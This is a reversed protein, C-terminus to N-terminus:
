DVLSLFITGIIDERVTIYGNLPERVVKKAKSSCHYLEKEGAEIFVLGVHKVILWNSDAVFLAVSSSVSENEMSLVAKKSAFPMTVKEPQALPHDDPLSFGKEAFFKGRDIVRTVTEDAIEDRRKLLSKNNPLWNASVFHCRTHFGIEGNIYRIRDLNGIVEEPLESIALALCTEVYTMCDFGDARFRPANVGEGLPAEIYMKSIFRKAWFYLREKISLPSAISLGEIIDEQLNHVSNGSDSM